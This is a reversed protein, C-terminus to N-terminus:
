ALFQEYLWKSDAFRDHSTPAGLVLAFRYSDECPFVSLLCFGAMDEYGTKLGMCGPVYYESDPHLLANTNVWTRTQGDAFTVEAYAQGCYAAIVPNQMALHAMRLLDIPTTYHDSRHIGDPVSYHTGTFGYEAAMENVAIMFQDVAEQPTLTEGPCLAYGVAAALAYAADNGSPLLMGQVLMRVTLQDGPKLDARSSAPHITSVETGVTVVADLDIHQLAVYATFIKTLSAPYVRANVDGKEYLLWDANPDYVFAFESLPRVVPLTTPPPAPITEPVTAPITTPETSPTTPAETSLFTPQPFLTAPKSTLQTFTSSVSASPTTSPLTGENSLLGSGPLLLLVCVLILALAIGAVIRKRM